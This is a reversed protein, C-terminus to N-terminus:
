NVAIEIQLEYTATLKGNINLHLHKVKTTINLDGELWSTKTVLIVTKGRERQITLRPADLLIGELSKWSKSINGM